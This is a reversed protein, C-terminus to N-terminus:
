EKIRGHRKLIERAKERQREDFYKQTYGERAPIPIEIRELHEKKDGRGIGHRMMGEFSPWGIGLQAAFDHAEIADPPLDRSVDVISIQPKTPEIDQAIPMSPVPPTPVNEAAAQHERAELEEVRATLVGVRAQLKGLERTLVTIEPLQHELIGLREELGRMSDINDEHKGLSLVSPVVQADRPMGPSAFQERENEWLLKAHEVQEEPIALWGRATREATLKGQKLWRRITKPDCDIYRAAQIVNYFRM